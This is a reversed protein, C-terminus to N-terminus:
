ATHLDPTLDPKIILILAGFLSLALLYKGVISFIVVTYNMTSLSWSLLFVLSILSYKKWDLLVRDFRTAWFIIWGVTIASSLVFSWATALYGYQPTFIMNLTVSATASFIGATTVVWMKGHYSLIDTFLRYQTSLVYALACIGILVGANSYEKTAFVTIIEDSFELLLFDCYLMAAWLIVSLRSIKHLTRERDYILGSVIIPSTVQTVADQLVYLLTALSMALSYLGVSNLDAYKVLILRDSLGTIWAGILSPLLPISFSLSRKLVPFSFEFVLLKEKWFYWGYYLVCLVPAVSIGILRAMVGMDLLILLTLTMMVSILTSIVEVLTSHKAELSQKLFITGLQGLQILLAPVFTLLLYLFPIQGVLQRWLSSTALSVAVVLGGYLLIFWFTTSYLLRLKSWEVKEDHFYRGFASDIYLSIIIPLFQGLSGLLSMMGYDTPSLYRTYVPLLLISLGKTCLSSFLYWKGRSIILSKWAVQENTKRM